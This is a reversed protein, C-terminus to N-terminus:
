YDKVLKLNLKYNLILEYVVNLIWVLKGWDFLFVIEDIIYNVLCMCYVFIVELVCLCVYVYRIILVLNKFVLLLKLNFKLIFFCNWWKFNIFMRFM